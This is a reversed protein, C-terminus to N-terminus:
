TGSGDNRFDDLMAEAIQRNRVAHAGARIASRLQTVRNQRIEPMAALLEKLRAVELAFGDDREMSESEGGPGGPPFAEYIGGNEAASESHPGGSSEGSSGIGQGTGLRVRDM